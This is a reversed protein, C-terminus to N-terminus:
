LACTNNCMFTSSRNDCCWRTDFTDWIIHHQLNEGKARLRTRISGQKIRIVFEGISHNYSGHRVRESLLNAQMLSDTIQMWAILLWKRAAISEPDYSHAYRLKSGQAQFYTATGCYARLRPYALKSIIQQQKYYKNFCRRCIHRAIMYWLTTRSGM